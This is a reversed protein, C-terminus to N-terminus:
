HFQIGTRRGAQFRSEVRRPPRLWGFMVVAVPPPNRSQMLINMEQNQFISQNNKARALKPIEIALLSSVRDGFIMGIKPSDLRFEIAFLSKL